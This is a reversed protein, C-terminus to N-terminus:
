LLLAMSINHYLLSLDILVIFFNIFNLIYKNIIYINCFLLLLLCLLNNM